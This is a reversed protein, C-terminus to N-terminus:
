DTGGELLSSTTPQQQQNGRKVYFRVLQPARARAPAAVTRASAVPAPVATSMAPGASMSPAPVLAKDSAEPAIASSALLTALLEALKAGTECLEREVGKEDLLVACILEGAAAGGSVVAATQERTCSLWLAALLLLAWIWSSSKFTM